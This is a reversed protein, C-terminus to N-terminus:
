KLILAACKELLSGTPDSRLAIELLPRWCPEVQSQLGLLRSAWLTPLREPHDIGLRYGRCQLHHGLALLKQDSM